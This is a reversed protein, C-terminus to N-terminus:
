DSARFRYTFSLTYPIPVGDRRAPSFSERRAAELAARDFAPDAAGRLVRARRVSGTATLELQVVVDAELGQSRLAEPYEPEVRATRRPREIDAGSTAVPAVKARRNLSPAAAVPRAAAVPAKATRDTEGDLANGVAFAPGAGKVTSGLSLGVVRRPPASPAQAMAPPAKAPPAKAAAKRKAPQRVRKVPRKAPEPKPAVEPTPTPESEPERFRVEVRTARRAQAPRPQGLLALAPLVHLGAALVLWGLDQAGRPWRAKM